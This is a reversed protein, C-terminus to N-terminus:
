ASCCFTSRWLSRADPGADSRRGHCAGSTHGGSASGAAGLLHVRVSVRRRPRLGRRIRSYLRTGYVPAYSLWWGVASLWCIPIIKVFRSVFTLPRARTSVVHVLEICPRSRAIAFGCVRRGVAHSGKGEPGRSSLRPTSGLAPTLRSGQAVAMAPACAILACGAYVFAIM